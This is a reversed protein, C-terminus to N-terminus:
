ATADHAGRSRARSAAAPDAGVRYAPLGIVVALEGEYDPQQVARPLVIEDEPGIVASSAKIFLVPEEPPAADGGERAHDPYNRAVGIIKGPRTVPAHLRVSARPLVIGA